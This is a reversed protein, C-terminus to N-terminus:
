GYQSQNTHWRKGPVIEAEPLFDGTRSGRVEPAHVWGFFTWDGSSLMGVRLYDVLLGPMQRYSHPTGRVPSKRRSAFITGPSRQCIKKRAYGLPPLSYKPWFSLYELLHFANVM